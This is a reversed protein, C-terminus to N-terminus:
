QTSRGFGSIVDDVIIWRWGVFFLPVPSKLFSIRASLDDLHNSGSWLFFRMVVM